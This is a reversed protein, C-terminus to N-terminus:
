MVNFKNAEIGIHMRFLKVLLFTMQGDSMNENFGAKVLWNGKRAV